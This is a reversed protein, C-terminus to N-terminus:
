QVAALHQCFFFLFSFFLFSFLLFLLGKLIRNAGESIIELHMVEFGYIPAEFERRNKLTMGAAVHLMGM